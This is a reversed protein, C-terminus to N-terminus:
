RSQKLIDAVWRTDTPVGSLVSSAHLMFDLVVAFLEDEPIEFILGRKTHDQKLLWNEPFDLGVSVLQNAARKGASHSFGLSAPTRQTAPVWTALPIEPGRASFFKVLLSAEPLNNEDVWPSVNMWTRPRKEQHSNEQTMVDMHGFIEDAEDSFFNVYTHSIAM